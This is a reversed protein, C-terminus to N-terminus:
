WLEANLVTHHRLVSASVANPVDDAHRAGEGEEGLKVAEEAYKVRTTGDATGHLDVIRRPLDVLSSARGAAGNCKKRSSSTKETGIARAHCWGMGPRTPGAAAAARVGGRAVGARERM